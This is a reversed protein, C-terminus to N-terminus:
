GCRVQEIVNSQPNFLINLRYPSYDETVPCTTCTVRRNIVDVPVPIDTKPKGVLWQLEGAKCLDATPTQPNRTGIPQNLQSREIARPTPAESAPTSCGALLTVAILGGKGLAGRAVAELLGPQRRSGQADELTRARRAAVGRGPRRLHHLM